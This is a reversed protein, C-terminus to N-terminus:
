NWIVPLENECADTDEESGSVNATSEQAVSEDDTGDRTDDECATVCLFLLCALCGACVVRLKMVTIVETM